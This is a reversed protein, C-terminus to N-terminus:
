WYVTLLSVSPGVVIFVGISRANSALLLLMLTSVQVEKTQPSFWSSKRESLFVIQIEFKSFEFRGVLYAGFSKSSSWPPMVNNCLL